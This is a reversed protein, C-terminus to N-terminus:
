GKKGHAIRELEGVIYAGATRPSFYREYTRRGNEGLRKALQPDELARLLAEALGIGDDALLANEEHVIEPLGTTCSSEAVVCSGCSFATVIGTRVGVPHRLPMLVADCPLLEDAINEVWSLLQVSPRDLLKRHSEPLSSRGQLIRLEFSDAGLRNELTPLVQKVLTDLGKGEGFMLNLGFIVIRPKSGPPRIGKKLAWGAGGADEIPPRFYQCDVGKKRLWAAHHAGFFGVSEYGALAPKHLGPDVRATGLYALMDLIYRRNLRPPLMKFAERMSVYKPVHLAAMRPFETLNHLALVNALDFVYVCDPRLRRLTDTLEGRVSLVPYLEVHKPFLLSRLRAPRRLLSNHTFRGNTQPPIPLSVTQVGLEDLRSLDEEEGRRPKGIDRNVYCVTTEHGAEKLANTVVWTLMPTGAAPSPLWRTVIAVHM